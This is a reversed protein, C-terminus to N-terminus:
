EPQYPGSQEEWWYPWREAMRLLWPVNGRRADEEIQSLAAAFFKFSMTQAGKMVRRGNCGRQRRVPASHLRIATRGSRRNKAMIGAAVAAVRAQVRGAQRRWAAAAPVVGVAGGRAHCCDARDHSGQFRPVDRAVAREAARLERGAHASGDGGRDRQAC